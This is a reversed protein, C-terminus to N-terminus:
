LLIIWKVNRVFLYEFYYVLDVHVTTVPSKFCAKLKVREDSFTLPIATQFALQQLKGM